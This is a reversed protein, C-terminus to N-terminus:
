GFFYLVFMEADQNERANRSALPTLGDHQSGNIFLFDINDGDL